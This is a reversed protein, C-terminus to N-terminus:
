NLAVGQEAMLGRLALMKRFETAYSTPVGIETCFGVADYDGLEHANLLVQLHFMAIKQNHTAADRVAAAIRQIM